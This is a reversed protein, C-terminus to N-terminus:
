DPQLQSSCAAAQLLYVRGGRVGKVPLYIIGLCFLYCISESQQLTSNITSSAVRALCRASIFAFDSCSM